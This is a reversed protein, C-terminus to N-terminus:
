VVVSPLSRRGIEGIEAGYIGCLEEQQQQAGGASAGTKSRNSPRRAEGEMRVGRLAELEIASAGRGGKQCASAGIASKKL